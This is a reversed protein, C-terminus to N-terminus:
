LEGAGLHRNEFTSVNYVMFVVPGYAPRSVPHNPFAILHFQHLGRRDLYLYPPVSYAGEEPDTTYGWGSQLKLDCFQMSVDTQIIENNNGPRQFHRLLSMRTFSSHVEHELKPPPLSFTNANDYLFVICKHEWEIIFYMYTQSALQLDLPQMAYM